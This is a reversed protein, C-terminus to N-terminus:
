IQMYIRAADIVPDTGEYEHDFDEIIQNLIDDEKVLQRRIAAPLDNDNLHHNECVNEEM